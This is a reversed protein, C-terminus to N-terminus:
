GATTTCFGLLRISDYGHPILPITSILSILGGTSNYGRSDALVYMAYSTSAQIVGQDLGNLGNVTANLYLPQPNTHITPNGVMIDIIDNSDRCQGPAIVVTQAPIGALGAASLNMGSIYLFPYPYIPDNQIQPLTSSSSTM